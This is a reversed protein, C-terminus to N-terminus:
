YLRHLARITASKAWNKRLHRRTNDTDFRKGNYSHHWLFFLEANAARAKFKGINAKTASDGDFSFIKKGPVNKYSSHHMETVDANKLVHGELSSAVMLVGAPLAERCSKLTSNYLRKGTRHPELFPSYYWKIDPYKEIIKALKRARKIAQRKANTTFRHNDRWVGHVRIIPAKGTAALGEITKLSSKVGTTNILFGAAAGIPHSKIIARQYMSGLIYDHGVIQKM